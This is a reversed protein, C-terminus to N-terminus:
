PGDEPIPTPLADPVRPLGGSEGLSAAPAARTAAWASPRPSSDAVVDEVDPGNPPTSKYSFRKAAYNGTLVAFLFVLWESFNTGGEWTTFLFRYGTAYILILASAVVVNTMPVDAIWKLIRQTRSLTATM